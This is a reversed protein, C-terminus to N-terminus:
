CPNRADVACGRLSIPPSRRKAPERPWATSGVLRGGEAAGRLLESIVTTHVQQAARSGSIDIGPACAVPELDVRFLPVLVRCRHLEELVQENVPPILGRAARSRRQEGLKVFESATLLGVQSFPYPLSLLDLSSRITAASASAVTPYERPPTGSGSASSSATM